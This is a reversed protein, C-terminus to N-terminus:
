FFLKATKLGIFVGILCLTVNLFINLLGKVVAGNQLLGVTEYSFASFTTFGGLIGVVLFLRLHNSTQAALLGILFSGIINVALTGFHFGHRLTHEALYVNIVHRGGAGLFGGLGVIIFEKLM